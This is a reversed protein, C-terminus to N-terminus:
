EEGSVGEVPRGQEAELQHPFTDPHAPLVCRWARGDNETDDEREVYPCPVQAAMAATAPQQPHEALWAQVVTHPRTEVAVQEPTRHTEAAAKEAADLAANWGQEWSARHQEEVAEELEREQQDQLQEVSAPAWALSRAGATGGIMLAASVPGAIALALERTLWGAVVCGALLAAAVSWLYLRVPEQERWRDLWSEPADHGGV